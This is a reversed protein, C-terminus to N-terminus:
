HEWPYREIRRAGIKMPVLIAISTVLLLLGTGIGYLWGPSVSILEPQLLLM